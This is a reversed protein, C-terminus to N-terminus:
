LGEVAWDRGTWWLRYVGPSGEVGVWLSGDGSPIVYRAERVMGQTRGLESLRQNIRGLLVPALAATANQVASSGPALSATEVQGAAVAPPTVVFHSSRGTLPFNNGLGHSGLDSPVSGKFAVKMRVDRHFQSATMSLQELTMMDGTTGSPQFVEGELFDIVFSGDFRAPGVKCGPKVASVFGAPPGDCLAQFALQPGLGGPVDAPWTFRVPVLYAGLPAAEDRKYFYAVFGRERVDAAAANGLVLLGVVLGILVRKMAKWGEVIASM